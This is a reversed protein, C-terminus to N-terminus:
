IKTMTNRPILPNINLVRTSRRYNGSKTEDSNYINQKDRGTRDGQTPGASERTGRVSRPDRVVRSSEYVLQSLGGQSVDQPGSRAHENSTAKTEGVGRGVCQARRGARRHDVDAEVETGEPEIAELTRTRTCLQITLRLVM